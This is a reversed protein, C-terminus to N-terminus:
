KKKEGLGKSGTTDYHNQNSELTPSLTPSQAALPASRKSLMAASIILAMISPPVIACRQLISPLYGTVGYQRSQKKKTKVSNYAYNSTKEESESGDPKM